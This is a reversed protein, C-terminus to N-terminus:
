SLDQAGPTTPVDRAPGRVTGAAGLGRLREGPEARRGPALLTASLVSGALLLAVLAPGAGMGSAAERPSSHEETGAASSREKARRRRSSSRGTLPREM